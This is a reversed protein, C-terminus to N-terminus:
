KKYYARMVKKSEESIRDAAHLDNEKLASVFAKDLRIMKEKYLLAMTRVKQLKYNTFAVVSVVVTIITISALTETIM